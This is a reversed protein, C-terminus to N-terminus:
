LHVEMTAGPTVFYLFFLPDGALLAIINRLVLVVTPNVLLDVDGRLFQELAPVTDPTTVSQVIDSM